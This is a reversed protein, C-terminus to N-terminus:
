QNFSIGTLNWTLTVINMEIENTVVSLGGSGDPTSLVDESQVRQTVSLDAGFIMRATFKSGATSTESSSKYKNFIDMTINGSADMTESVTSALFYYTSGLNSELNLEKTDTTIGSYNGNDDFTVKCACIKPITDKTSANTILNGDVCDNTKDIDAAKKDGVVYIKAPSVVETPTGQVQGDKYVTTVETEKLRVVSVTKGDLLDKLLEAASTVSYYRQDSEAIKSMRGAAATAAALIVSSLVASV